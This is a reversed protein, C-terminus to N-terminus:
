FNGKPDKRDAPITLECVLDKPYADKTKRLLWYDRWYKWWKRVADTVEEDTYTKGNGAVILDDAGVIFGVDECRATLIYKASASLESRIATRNKYSKYVTDTYEPDNFRFEYTAIPLPRIKGEKLLDYWKQSAEETHNDLFIVFPDNSFCLTVSGTHTDKEAKTEDYLFVDTFELRSEDKELDWGTWSGMESIADSLINLTEQKM